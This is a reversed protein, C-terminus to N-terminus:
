KDNYAHKRQTGPEGFPNVSLMREERHRAYQPL